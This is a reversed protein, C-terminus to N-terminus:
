DKHGRLTAAVKGKDVTWLLLVNDDGASAIVKGSPSFALANVADTHGKFTVPDDAAVAAGCAALAALAIFRAYSMSPTRESIRRNRCNWADERGASATEPRRLHVSGRRVAPM